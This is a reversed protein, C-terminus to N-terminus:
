TIISYVKSILIQNIFFNECIEYFYVNLILILMELIGALAGGILLLKKANMYKDTWSGIFLAMVVSPITLMAISYLSFNTMEGLIITKKNEFDEEETMQPLFSCYNAKLNYKFLCIKDQILQDLPVKKISMVFFFIFIYPEVSLLNIFENFRKIKKLMRDTRKSEM